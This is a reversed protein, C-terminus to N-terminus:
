MNPDYEFDGHKTEALWEFKRFFEHNTVKYIVLKWGKEDCVEKIAQMAKTGLGTGREEMSIQPLYFVGKEVTSDMFLRGDPTTIVYGTGGMYDNYQESWPTRDGQPIGRYGTAGLKRAVLTGEYPISFFTTPEPRFSKHISVLLQPRINTKGEVADLFEDIDDIKEALDYVQDESFTQASEVINIFKRM